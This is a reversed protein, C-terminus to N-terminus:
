NVLYRYQLDHAMEGDKITVGKTYRYLVVIDRNRLLEIFDKFSINKFPLREIDEVTMSYKILSKPFHKISKM